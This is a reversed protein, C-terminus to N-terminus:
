GVDINILKYFSIITKFGHRMLLVFHISQGLASGQPKKKDIEDHMRLEQAMWRKIILCKKVRIHM